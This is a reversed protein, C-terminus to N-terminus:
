SKDYMSKALWVLSGNFCSLLHLHAVLIVCVHVCVFCVEEQLRLYGLSGQERKEGGESSWAEEGSEVM